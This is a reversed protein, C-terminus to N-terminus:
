NLIVKVRLPRVNVRLPRVKVMLPGAKRLLGNQPVALYRLPLVKHKSMALHELLAYVFSQWMCVRCLKICM